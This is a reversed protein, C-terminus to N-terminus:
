GYFLTHEIFLRDLIQKRPEISTKGNKSKLQSLFLLFSINNFLHYELQGESIQFASISLFTLPSASPDFGKSGM